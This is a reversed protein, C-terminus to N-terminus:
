GEGESEPTGKPGPLLANIKAVRPAHRGEEFATDLFTELAERALEPGILREGLCIVNADNHARTLRASTVDHVTAARVGPVKNAAMAIGIGTGCVCLGMEVEGAAVKRAVAEGYDPYDVRDPGHTGCDIVEHGGARLHNVLEDKLRVGAHDAGAAIRKVVM